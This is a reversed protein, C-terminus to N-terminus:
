SIIGHDEDEVALPLAGTGGDEVVFVPAAPVVPGVVRGKAKKQPVVRGKAPTHDIPEYIDQTPWELISLHLMFAM